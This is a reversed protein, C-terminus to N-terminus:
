ARRAFHRIFNGFVHEAESSTACPLDDFNGPLGRQEADARLDDRRLALYSAMVEGTFEPHFQVGRISDGLAIAQVPSRQNGALVELGSGITAPAIEDRHAQNASLTPGLDAFLPDRRGRDSLEVVTTAYEWGRPNEVVRAGAFVGILQHGFCVGLVPTGAERARGLVDLAIDMWPEPSTLSAASGSVVLGAYARPDVPAGARGDIVELHAGHAATLREFWDRYDGHKVAVEAPAEGVVYLALPLV